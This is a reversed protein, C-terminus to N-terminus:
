SPSDIDEIQYRRSLFFNEYVFILILLWALGLFYGGLVDTFFHAGLYIRAPGILMILVLCFGGILSRFASEGWIKERLYFMMGFFSVYDFVHGSPYCFSKEPLLFLMNPIDQFDYLEQVQPYAPCPLAFFYKLIRVVPWTLGSVLLFFAETQHGKNYLRRFLPFALFIIIFDFFSVLLNFFLWQPAQYSQLIQSIGLEQIFGKERLFALALGLVILLFSFGLLKFDKKEEV